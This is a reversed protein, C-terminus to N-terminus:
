RRDYLVMFAEAADFGSQVGRLSAQARIAEESRPFPFAGMEGEYMRMAEIKGELHGSIDVFSNARFIGKHDSISLDTESLTEYVAVRRVAPAKTWKLCAACAEFTVTHDSHADGPHPLYVIDPAHRTIAKAMKPVIDGMPMSDLRTSALGLNVVTTFGFHASVAEIESARKVQRQESFGAEVTMATVILWVIEDNDARHRLLTGGCGLTEDTGIRNVCVGVEHLTSGIEQIYSPTPRHMLGAQLAL